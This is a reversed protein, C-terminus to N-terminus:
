NPNAFGESTTTIFCKKKKKRECAVKWGEHLLLNKLLWLRNHVCHAASHVKVLVADDETADLVVHRFDPSAASQEEDSASCAVVTSDGYTNRQKGRGEKCRNPGQQPHSLSLLEIQSM